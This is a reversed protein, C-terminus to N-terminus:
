EDGNLIFASWVAPSVGQKIMAVKANQLAELYPLGKEIERYFLAMLEKTGADSVSWLSAVIAKAGAQMFAKSLLSVSDPANIGTLGTECASLVVLETGRLDMGSLKLATVVGEGKGKKLASNAGTLALGANLMPNSLESKIFFGHTAIHLVKPQKVKLLNAENAESGEYSVVEEKKLINKISRAEEETGKLKAFHMQFIRNNTGRTTASLSQSFDPNAFVVIKDNNPNSKKLTHLRVFERGSPIYRVEKYEVLYQKKQPSFLAEFPLLRLLGDASVILEKKNPLFRELLTKLLIDYLKSLEEKDMKSKQALSSKMQKRFSLILQDIEKTKEESISRFFIKGRADVAFGFYAKGIRAFDIYIQEPKLKSILMKFDIEVSEVQGSLEEKLKKIEAKHEEIELALITASNEEVKHQYLKSLKHKHRLLAQIKRKTESDKEMEVRSIRNQNELLAGKYRLWYTFAEEYSKRDGLRSTAQFLLNIKMQNSQLFHEYELADLVPFFDDRQNLLIEVSKKAYVYAQKYDGHNFYLWGLNNYEDQLTDTGKGLIQEKVEIAKQLYKKAQEFEKLHMYSIGMNNYVESLNLHKMGGLLANRLTLMKTYYAIAEQYEGLHHQLTGMAGYASALAITKPKNESLIEHIHLSKEHFKEAEKYRKLSEYVSGIASYISATMADKKGVGQERIELAKKLNSLAEKHNGIRQFVVGLNNYSEALSVDQEPFYKTRLELANKLFKVAEAYRGMHYYIVGMNDYNISIAAHESPYYKLKIDLSKQNYELAKEYEGLDQHLLAQNNYMDATALDEKGVSTEYYSTLRNQYILAKSFDRKAKHEELSQQIEELAKLSEASGVEINNTKTPLATKHKGLALTYWSFPAFAGRSLAKGENEVSFYVEKSDWNETGRVKVRLLYKGAPLKTSKLLKIQTLLPSGNVLVDERAEEKKTFNLHVKDLPFFAVEFAKPDLYGIYSKLNDVAEVRVEINESVSKELEWIILRSSGGYNRLAKSQPLSESLVVKQGNIYLNFSHGEYIKSMDYQKSERQSESKQPMPLPSNSCGMFLLVLLLYIFYYM